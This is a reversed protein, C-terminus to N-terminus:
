ISNGQDRRHEKTQNRRNQHEYLQQFHQRISIPEVVEDLMKAIDKQSQALAGSNFRRGYTSQLQQMVEHEKDPRIAQRVTDLEITDMDIAQQQLKSYQVLAADLEATHKEEQQDLKKLLFEMSTVRQKVAAMGHDDSCNLQNLLLVKESKLEEIDETLATIKQSLEHHRFVQITPSDKKAEMLVRRERIKAKLQRVIDEYRKSDPRVDRLTHNIRTKEYRIHLFHYRITLMKQRVAEMAEAIAPITNKVADMLKKVLSKLERLM